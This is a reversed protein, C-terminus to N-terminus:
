SVVSHIPNHTKKNNLLVVFHAGAMLVLESYITKQKKNMKLFSSPSKFETIAKSVEKADPKVGLRSMTFIIDLEQGWYDCTKPKIQKCLADTDTKAQETGLTEWIDVWLYDTKGITSLTAPPLTSKCDCQIVNLRGSKLNDEWLSKCEGSLLNSYNNILEQDYELVTLKKISPKRLLNISIMGLGLGAVVVNGKASNMPLFHSEMELPTISMWTTNDKLLAIGHTIQSLPLFYGLTDKHLAQYKITWNGLSKADQVYDPTTPIGKFHTNINALTSTAFQELLERNGTKLLNLYSPKM